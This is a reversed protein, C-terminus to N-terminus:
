RVDRPGRIDRRTEHDLALVPKQAEARHILQGNVEAGMAMEILNYYINGNIRARATLEIRESSHVDGVVTGNLIMSPARVEGEISGHESLTLMAANDPAAAVNGKIAGDVHLIGSFLLDGHVQTNQGILTDINTPKQSKSNGWM